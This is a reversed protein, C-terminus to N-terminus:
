RGGVWRTGDDCDAVLYQGDPSFTLRRAPITLTYVAQNGPVDWVTPTAGSVALWRGDARCAFNIRAYDSTIM